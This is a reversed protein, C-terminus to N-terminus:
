EVVIALSTEAVHPWAQCYSQHGGTDLALKLQLKSQGPHGTTLKALQSHSILDFKSAIETTSKGVTPQLDPRLPM